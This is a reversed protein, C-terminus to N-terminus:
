MAALNPETSPLGPSFKKQAWLIISSENEPQGANLSAVHLSLVQSLVM